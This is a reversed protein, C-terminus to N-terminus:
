REKGALESLVEDTHEGLAPAAVEAADSRFAACVPVPLAGLARGFRTAVQREFLGRANFHPDRVAQELNVIESVCVDQGEFRELWYSAPHEAIRRAVEEKAVADDQEQALSPAGILDVFLRWFKDELPAAALFKADSTKYIAYRPSAGTLLENGPRPWEGQAWGSGLGWYMLTFLNDTMAIDLHRGKGDGDRQRLALLINVVAPYTGAALDGTLTPPIVPAGSADASLALMGTEAQFNLDHAAKLAKPGHQGYTTISCYILRPNIEALTEYDLGLRRMVGPRFQEVLVDVDKVLELVLMRDAESKLDLCISRKGRNLLVFNVSDEDDIRPVYSRMEDGEARELKIVDAGAEALILTCMPGPLLTSFDLVKIGSLPQTM